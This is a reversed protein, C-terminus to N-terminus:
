IKCKLDQNAFKGCTNIEYNYIVAVYGQRRQRKERHIPNSKM